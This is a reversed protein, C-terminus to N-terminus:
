LLNKNTNFFLSIFKFIIYFIVKTGWKKGVIDDHKYSGCRNNYIGGKELKFSAM